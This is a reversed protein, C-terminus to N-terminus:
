AIGLKRTNSRKLELGNFRTGFSKTTTRGKESRERDGARDGWVTRAFVLAPPVQRTLNLRVFCAATKM